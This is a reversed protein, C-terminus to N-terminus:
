KERVHKGSLHEVRLELIAVRGGNRRIDADVDESPPFYKQALARLIGDIRQPDTVRSVRGFAIVSRVHYWWAGPEQVGQETVCFSAKDCAAIADLKHGTQASHFFLSGDQYLFNLPVAYPYGEDGLVALVGRRQERLLEECEEKPLKQSFRRMGRFM